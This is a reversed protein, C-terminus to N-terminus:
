QSADTPRNRNIRKPIQKVEQIYLDNKLPNQSTQAMIEKVKKQEEERHPECYSWHARETLWAGTKSVTEEAASAILTLPQCSRGLCGWRGQGTGNVELEVAM